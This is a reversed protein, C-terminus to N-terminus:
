YVFPIMAKRNKVANAGFNERYWELHLRGRPGLNCFTWLVFVWAPSFKKAELLLAFGIWEIFEFSYNPAIVYKYIGKNLLVYTKGKSEVKITGNSPSQRQEAMVDDSWQNGVFGTFFICLGIILASTSNTKWSACQRGIWVGNALNFCLALLVVDVRTPSLTRKLPYILARHIYHITWLVVPLNPFFSRTIQFYALYLTPIAPVEQVMWGISGKVFGFFRSTTYHRGYAASISSSLLVFAVLALGIWITYLGDCYPLLATFLKDLLSALTM